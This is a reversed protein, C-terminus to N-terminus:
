STGATLNAATVYAIKSPMYGYIDIKEYSQCSFNFKQYYINSKELNFSVRIEKFFIATKVEPPSAGPMFAAM